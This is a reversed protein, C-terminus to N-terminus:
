KCGSKGYKRKRTRWAKRAAKARKPSKRKRKAMKKGKRAVNLAIAVSQSQPYGERRLRSINRSVNEKGPLLPM